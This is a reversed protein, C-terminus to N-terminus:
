SLGRIQLVTKLQLWQVQEEQILKLQQHATDVRQVWGASEEIVGLAGKTQKWWRIAVPTQEQMSERLSRQIEAWEDEELQPQPILERETLLELYAERQEPLMFRSAGFINAKKSSM